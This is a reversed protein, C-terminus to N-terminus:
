GEGRLPSPVLCGKRVSQTGAKAPIVTFPNVGMRVKGM